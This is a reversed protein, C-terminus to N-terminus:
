ERFIADFKGKGYQEGVAMFEWNLGASVKLRGMKVDMQSPRYETDSESRRDFNKHM